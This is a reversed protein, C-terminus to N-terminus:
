RAKRRRGRLRRRPRRIGRGAAPAFWVPRTARPFDGGQVGAMGGMRYGLRQRLRQFAERQRLFLQQLDDLAHLHVELLGAVGVELGQVQIAVADGAHDAQEGGLDEAVGVAQGQFICV